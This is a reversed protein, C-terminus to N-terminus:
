GQERAKDALRQDFAARNIIYAQVSDRHLWIEKGAPSFLKASNATRWITGEFFPFREFCEAGIIGTCQVPEGIREYEELVAVKYGLSALRYAIYSGAVGAGAVAIDYLDSGKKVYFCDM